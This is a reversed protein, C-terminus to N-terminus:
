KKKRHTLEHGPVTATIGIFLGTIHILAIKDVINISDKIYNIDIFLYNRYFNLLWISDTGVFSLISTLILILLLLLNIYLTIDLLVPYSYKNISDDKGFFLDGLIMFLSYSIIFITPGFTGLSISYIAILITIPAIIYKLYKIM